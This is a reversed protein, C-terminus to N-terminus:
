WDGVNRKPGVPSRHHQAKLGCGSRRKDHGRALDGIGSRSVEAAAHHSSTRFIQSRDGEAVRNDEPGGEGALRTLDLHCRTAIVNEASRALSVDNVSSLASVEVHLNSHAM